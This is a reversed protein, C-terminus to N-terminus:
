SDYRRRLYTYSYRECQDFKSIPWVSVKRDIVTAHILLPSNFRDKQGTYVALHLGPFERCFRRVESSSGKIDEPIVRFESIGVRGVFFVDGTLLEENSGIVRSNSDDYYM